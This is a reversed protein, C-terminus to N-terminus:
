YSVIVGHTMQYCESNEIYAKVSKEKDLFCFFLFLENGKGIKNEVLSPFDENGSCM